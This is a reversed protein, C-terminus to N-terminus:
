YELEIKGEVRRLTRITPEGELQFFEQDGGPIATIRRTNANLSYAPHEHFPGALNASSKLRPGPIVTAQSLEGALWHSYAAVRTALWVTGPSTEATPDPLWVGPSQEELLGRRDFIAAFFPTKEEPRIKFAGQVSSMVGALKWRGDTDRLFVGGGSDGSSVTAEDDGADNSFVAALHEGPNEESPSVVMEIVNTGWRLQNDPVNWRWGQVRQGEPAMIAGGRPGGRGYLVVTAGVENTGAYSEAWSPFHGSVRLLRLDTGARDVAAVIPFSLGGWTISLNAAWGLHAATLVEAPGVITGSGFPGTQFEWGSRALEGEPATTHASPDGTGFLIVGWAAFPSELLVLLLLLFRLCKM